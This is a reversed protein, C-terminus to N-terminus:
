INGSSRFIIPDSKGHYRPGGNEATFYTLSSDVYTDMGHRFSEIQIRIPDSRIYRLM